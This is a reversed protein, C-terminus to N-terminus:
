APVQDINRTFAVAVVWPNADWGYGRAENIQNWLSEYASTASIATRPKSSDSYLYQGPILFESGLPACGEAIADESNIEQLRQVRVARVVLTLRSAWRPMHMGQRFRGLKSIAPYGWTQHEGDADYRIPEEGGMAAPSLDDYAADTGWAERVYLRDAKAFPLKRWQDWQATGGTVSPGIGMWKGDSVCCENTRSDPQPQLVRRTQTKTGALLARVMPGSFLIPRDAM